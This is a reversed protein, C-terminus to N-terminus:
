YYTTYVLYVLILLATVCPELSYAGIWICILICIKLSFIAFAILNLVMCRELGCFCCTWIVNFTITNMICLTVSRCPEYMFARVEGSGRLSTACPGSTLTSRKKRFLAWTYLLAQKPLNITLCVVNIKNYLNNWHNEKSLRLCNHLHYNSKGM